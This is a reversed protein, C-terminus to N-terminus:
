YTYRAGIMFFRGIAGDQALAPDYPAGGTEAGNGASGFTELDYPAQRNFM